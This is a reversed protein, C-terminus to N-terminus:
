IHDITAFLHVRRFGGAIEGSLLRLQDRRDLLDIFFDSFRAFLGFFRFERPSVAFRRGFGSAFATPPTPPSAPTAATAAVTLRAFSRLLGEGTVSDGLMCDRVLIVIGARSFLVAKALRLLTAFATRKAFTFGAFPSTASAAAPAAAATVPLAIALRREPRAVVPRFRFQM